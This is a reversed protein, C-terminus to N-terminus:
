PVIRLKGPKFSLLVSFVPMGATVPVGMTWARRERIRSYIHVQVPVYEMYLLVRQIRVTGPGRENVATATVRSFVATMATMM